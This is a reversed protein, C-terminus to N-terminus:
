AYRICYNVAKNMPRTETDRYRYYMANLCLVVGGTGVNVWPDGDRSM